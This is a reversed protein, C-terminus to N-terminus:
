MQELHKEFFDKCIKEFDDMTAHDNRLIEDCNDVFFSEPKQANIRTLAQEKSIADRAMIRAIRMELPATIGIVIDCIEAIDSEILAIADIAAVKGGKSEWDSIRQEIEATVYKHTIDNLDELAKSDNFVIEGLKKRNITDNELVNPFRDNIANQLARNEALLQHYIADCDLTLAGLLELSRLATTKGSGTGGTIGIIYM